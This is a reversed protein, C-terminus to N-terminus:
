TQALSWFIVVYFPDIKDFNQKCFDIKDLVGEGEYVM